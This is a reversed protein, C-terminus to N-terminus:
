RRDYLYSDSRILITHGQCLMKKICHAFLSCACVQSATRDCPAASRLMFLLNDSRTKKRRPLSVYLSLSVSFVLVVMQVKDPAFANTQSDTAPPRVFSSAFEQASREWTVACLAFTSVKECNISFMTVGWRFSSLGVLQCLDSPQLIKSSKYSRKKRVESPLSIM